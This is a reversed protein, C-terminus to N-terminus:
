FCVIFISKIIETQLNFIFPLKQNARINKSGSFKADRQYSAVKLINITKVSILTILRVASKNRIFLDLDKHTTGTVWDREVIKVFGM